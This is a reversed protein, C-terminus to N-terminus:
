LGRREIEEMVESLLNTLEEDSLSSVSSKKEKRHPNLDVGAVETCLADCIENWENGNHGRVWKYTVRLNRRRVEAKYRFVLDTNKKAKYGGSLVGLAYQSDSYVIVSCGNPLSFVGEMIAKIEARNNTEHEVKQSFRKIEKGDQLIVYAFGGVNESMSYGGDTYIEYDFM